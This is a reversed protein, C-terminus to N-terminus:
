AVATRGRFCLEIKGGANRPSWISRKINAVREVMANALHAAIGLDLRNSTRTLRAPAAIAARGRGGFEVFRIFDAEIGGAVHKPDFPKTMRDPLAIRFCSDNCGYCACPCGTEGAVTPQCRARLQVLRM